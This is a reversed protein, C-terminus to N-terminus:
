TCAPHLHGGNRAGDQIDDDILAACSPEDPLLLTISWHIWAEVRVRAAKTRCSISTPGRSGKM